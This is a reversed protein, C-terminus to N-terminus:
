HGRRVAEAQALDRSAAGEPDLSEFRKLFKEVAAYGILMIVGGIFTLFGVLVDQALNLQEPTAITNLWPLKDLMFTFLAAVLVAAVHRIYKGAHLM